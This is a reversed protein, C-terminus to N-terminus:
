DGRYRVRATNQVHQLQQHLNREHEVTCQVLVVAFQPQSSAADMLAGLWVRQSIEVTKVVAM